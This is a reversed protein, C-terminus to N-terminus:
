TSGFYSYATSFLFGMAGGAFAYVLVRKWGLLRM